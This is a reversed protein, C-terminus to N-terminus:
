RLTKVNDSACSRGIIVALNPSATKIKTFNFSGKSRTDIILQSQWYEFSKPHFIAQDYEEFDLINQFQEWGVAKSNKLVSIKKGKEDSKYFIPLLLNKGVPLVILIREKDFDAETLVAEAVSIEVLPVRLADSLGKAIASGIKLGTLSGQGKSVKILNLHTKEIRNRKLLYDIQELVDESKSIEGNGQWNGIVRDNEFLALSGGAIATEIVLVLNKNSSSNVGTLM